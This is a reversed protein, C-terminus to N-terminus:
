VTHAFILDLMFAVKDIIISMFFDNHNSYGIVSSKRPRKYLINSTSDYYFQLLSCLEQRWILPQM